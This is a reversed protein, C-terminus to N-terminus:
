ATCDQCSPFIFNVYVSGRLLGRALERDQTNLFYPPMGQGDTSHVCLVALARGAAHLAPSTPM